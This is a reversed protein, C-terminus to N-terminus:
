GYGTAAEFDQYHRGKYDVAGGRHFRRGQWEAHSPRAGGHATT